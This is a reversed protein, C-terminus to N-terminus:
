HIPIRRLRRLAWVSLVLAMLLLALLPVTNHRLLQRSSPEGYTFRPLAAYDAAGLSQGAALRTDFFDRWREHFALTDTRLQRYRAGDSGSLSALVQYTLTGPSLYQLRAVLSQQQVARQDFAALLPLMIAAIERESRAVSRYYATMDMDQGRMDPHDFFYQDRESAARKDAAETAERLETTLAVRSPAAFMTTAALNTLAPALVVFLLWAGTLLSANLDSPLSRTNIWIALAFWFAGYLTAALAWLLWTGAVVPSALPVGAVLAALLLALWLTVTLLWARVSCKGRIFAPLDSGAAAAIALVGREREGSVVNFTLAIVVLPLLWVIVFAVDFNGLALRLPNDISAHDLFHHAGRATVLYRGPLLDMQGIALAALPAPPLVAPASLVAYGVSGPDRATAVGRAAQQALATRLEAAEAHAAEAAAVEAALLARGNLAAALLLVTLAFLAWPAVAERRLLRLEEFLIRRSASM